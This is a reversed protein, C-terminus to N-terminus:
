VFNKLSDNFASLFDGMKGLTNYVKLPDKLDNILANFDYQSLLNNIQSQVNIPLQPLLNEVFNDVCSKFHEATSIMEQDNGAFELSHMQSLSFKLEDLITTLFAKDEHNWEPPIIPQIGGDGIRM